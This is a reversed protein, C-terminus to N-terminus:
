ETAHVAQRLCRVRQRGIACGVGGCWGRSVIAEFVASDFFTVVVIQERLGIGESGSGIAVGVLWGMLRVEGFSGM